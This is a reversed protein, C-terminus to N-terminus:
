KSKNMINQLIIQYYSVVYFLILSSEFRLSFLLHIGTNM